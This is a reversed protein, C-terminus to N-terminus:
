HGRGLFRLLNIIIFHQTACCPKAIDICLLLVYDSDSCRDIVARMVISVMCGLGVKMFLCSLM